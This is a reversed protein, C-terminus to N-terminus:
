RHHYCVDARSRKRHCKRKGALVTRRRRQRSRAAIPFARRFGTCGPHPSRGPRCRGVDTTACPQLQFHGTGFLPLFHRASRDRRRRYRRRFRQGQHVEVPGAFSSGGPGSVPNGPNRFLVARYRHHNFVGSRRDHDLGTHGCVTTGVAACRSGSRCDGSGLFGAPFAAPVVGRLCGSPGGCWCGAVLRLCWTGRSCAPFRAEPAVPFCRHHCRHHIRFRQSCGLPHGRNRPPRCHRSGVLVPCNKDGHYRRHYVDTDLSRRACLVRTPAATGIRLPDAHFCFFEADM